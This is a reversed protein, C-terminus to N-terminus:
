QKGGKYDELSNLAGLSAVLYQRKSEKDAENEKRIFITNAKVANEYVEIALDSLKIQFVFRTTKPFKPLYRWSHSVLDKATEIFQMPSAKREDVRTSM